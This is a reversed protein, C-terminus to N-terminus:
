TSSTSKLKQWLVNVEDANLERYEGVALDGLQVDSFSLRHLRVVLNDRARWMLRVQHFKGETITLDVCQVDGDVLEAKVAKRAVSFGGVSKKNQFLASGSLFCSLDEDTCPRQLWCRYTKPSDSEPKM